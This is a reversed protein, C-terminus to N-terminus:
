IILKQYRYSYHVRSFSVFMIIDSISRREGNEFIVTERVGGGKVMGGGQQLPGTNYISLHYWLGALSGNMPFM